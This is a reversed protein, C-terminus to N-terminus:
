REKAYNIIKNKGSLSFEFQFRRQELSPLAEVIALRALVPPLLGEWVAYHYKRTEVEVFRTNQLGWAALLEVLPSALLLHKQENPSYGADLATWAGRPDFNFSGKMPTTVSFPDSLMEDRSESWLQRIGKILVDGQAQRKKPKGQIGYLMSRAITYASRNGAYGKFPDRGSGDAWHTLTVAAQHTTLRIPLASDEGRGSPFVESPIVAENADRSEVEPDAEKDKKFVFGPPAVQTLQAQALFEFVAELPDETGDVELELCPRNVDRWSFGMRTEGLLTESAEMLGFCALVQGPSHLEVPIRVSAM